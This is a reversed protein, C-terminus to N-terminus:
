AAKRQEARSAARGKAGALGQNVYDMVRDVLEKTREEIEDLNAEVTPWLVRSPPRFKNSLGRVMRQGQPTPVKGKGSMDFLVSTPGKYKIYFTAV